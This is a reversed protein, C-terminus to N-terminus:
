HRPPRHAQRALFEAFYRQSEEAVIGPLVLTFMATIRDHLDEGDSTADSRVASGVIASVLMHAVAQVDVDPRLDGEARARAVDTTMSDLWATSIAAAPESHGAFMRLLAAGVRALDDTRVQDVVLFTGHIIGELAPPSAASITDFTRSYTFDSRHHGGTERM